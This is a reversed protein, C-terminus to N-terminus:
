RESRIYSTFGAHEAAARWGGTLKLGPATIVGAYDELPPKGRSDIVDVRRPYETHALQYRIYALILPDTGSPFVALWVGGVRESEPLLGRLATVAEAGGPLPMGVVGESGAPRVVRWGAPGGLGRAVSIGGLACWAILLLVALHRLLHLSSQPVPPPVPQEIM